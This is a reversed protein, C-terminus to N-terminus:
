FLTPPLLLPTTLLPPPPLSLMLCNQTINWQSRYQFAAGPRELLAIKYSANENFIGFVPSSPPPFTM